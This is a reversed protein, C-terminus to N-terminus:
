RVRSLGTFPLSKPRGTQQYISNPNTNLNYVTRIEKIISTSFFMMTLKLKLQTVKYMYQFMSAHLTDLEVRFSSVISYVDM